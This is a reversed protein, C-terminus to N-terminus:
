RPRRTTTLNLRSISEPAKRKSNVLTTIAQVDVRHKMKLANIVNNFGESNGQYSYDSDKIWQNRSFIRRELCLAECLSILHIDKGITIPVQHIFWTTMDSFEEASLEAMVAEIIEAKRITATASHSFLRACCGVKKADDRLRAIESNVADELTEFGVAALKLRTSKPKEGPKKVDLAAEEFEVDLNKGQSPREKEDQLMCRLQEKSKEDTLKAIKENANQFRHDRIDATIDLVDATLIDVETEAGVKAVNEEISTHYKKRELHSNGFYRHNKVANMTFGVGNNKATYAGVRLREILDNLSPNEEKSKKQLFLLVEYIAHVELQFLNSDAIERHFNDLRAEENAASMFAADAAPGKHTLRSADAIAICTRSNNTAASKAPSPAAGRESEATAADAAPTAELLDRLEPPLASLTYALRLGKGDERILRGDQPNVVTSCGLDALKVLYTGDQQLFLINEPKIDRHVLSLKRWRAATIAIQAIISKLPDLEIKDPLATLDGQFQPYAGNTRRPTQVLPLVAENPNAHRLAAPTSPAAEEPALEQPKKSTVLALNSANQQIFYVKSEGGEADPERGKVSELLQTLRIQRLAMMHSEFSRM